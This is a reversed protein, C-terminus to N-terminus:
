LLLMYITHSTGTFLFASGQFAEGTQTIVNISFLLFSRMLEIVLAIVNKNNSEGMHRKAVFYVSTSQM